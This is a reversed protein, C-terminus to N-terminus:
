HAGRAFGGAKALGGRLEEIPPCFDPIPCRTFFFTIALAQGRFQGLSIAQGLENSKLDGRAPHGGRKSKSEGRQCRGQGFIGALRSRTIQFTSTRPSLRNPLLLFRVVVAAPGVDVFWVTEHSDSEPSPLANGSAAASNGGSSEGITANNALNAWPAFRSFEGHAALVYWCNENLARVPQLSSLLRQWAARSLTRQRSSWGTPGGVM